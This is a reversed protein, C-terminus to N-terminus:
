FLEGQVAVMAEDTAAPEAALWLELEEETILPVGLKEARETKATGTYGPVSFSHSVTRCVNSDTGTMAM